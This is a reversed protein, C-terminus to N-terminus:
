VLLITPQLGIALIQFCLFMTLPNSLRKAQSLIFRCDVFAVSLSSLNEGTQGSCRFQGVGAANLARLMVLVKWLEQWNRGLMLNIATLVSLLDPPYLLSLLVTSTIITM